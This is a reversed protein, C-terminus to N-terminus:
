SRRCNPYCGGKAHYSLCIQDGTDTLPPQMTGIIDKLKKNFPILAMLQPDSHENVILTAQNSQRTTRTLGTAGTLASVGSTITPTTAISADDSTVTAPTLSGPGTFLGPTCKNNVLQYLPLPLMPKLYTGLSLNRLIGVFNPMDPTVMSRKAEFWDFCIMQVSRLVHVPKTSTRPNDIQQRIRLRYQKTLATWFTRYNTTLPHNAGLIAGLLNGFIGLNQELDFYNLPYSCFEKPVKFHNLDNFSVGFEREYLLGFSRSLETSSTRYEVSGDMVCFPQLGTKLDDQHDALFTVTSLDSHLKPTLIPALSVFAQDSRAYSELFKRLVSFV